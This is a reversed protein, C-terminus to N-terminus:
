AGTKGLRKDQAAIDLPFVIGSVAARVLNEKWQYIRPSVKAFREFLDSHTRLSASRPLSPTGFLEEARFTFTSSSPHLCKRRTRKVTRRKLLVLIASRVSCTRYLAAARTKNARRVLLVHSSAPPRLHFAVITAVSWYGFRPLEILAAPNRVRSLEPTWFRSNIIRLAASIPSIWFNPILSPTNVHSKRLTTTVRSGDNKRDRPHPLHFEPLVGRREKVDRPIGVVHFNM